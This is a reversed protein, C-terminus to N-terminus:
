RHLWAKIRALVMYLRARLNSPQHGLAQALSAAAIQPNGHRFHSMGHLFISRFLRAQIASPSAKRGDPGAVGWQAITRSLILYEYCVDAVKTTISSEHIRYLATPQELGVMTVQRSLRLWLDYDQGKRLSEDFGGVSLVAERSVLVTSTWVICDSLLEVYPSGTVLRFDALQGGVGQGLVKQADEFRGHADPRWYVFRSYALRHPTGELAAVQLSIKNGAWVDDADLFAVLSGSARAIGLNRAAASGKNTQRVLLAGPAVASVIDCTEDTSGDDVVVIELLPYDQALVSALAEAIFEASNYAPIVVSVLPADRNGGRVTRTTSDGAM